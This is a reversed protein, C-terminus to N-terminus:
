KTANVVQMAETVDKEILLTLAREVKEVIDTLKRLEAPKFDGLVYTSLKEGTPRHTIGLINVHAIGLRIRTFTTTDCAQIISRVGNHGGAGRDYSIKVTGFPLDIDDHVVVLTQEHEEADCFKKVSIGSKNMYTAPFLFATETGAFTGRSVEASYTGSHLPKQFNNKAIIARLIIWGVNHRSHEYETGPNGLGVVIIM